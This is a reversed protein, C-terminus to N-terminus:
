GFFYMNRATVKTSAEATYTTGSKLPRDSQVQVTVEISLLSELIDAKSLPPTLEAGDSDLYQVTFKSNPVITIAGLGGNRTIGSWDSPSNYAITSVRNLTSGAPFDANESAVYDASITVTNSTVASVEGKLGDDGGAVRDSIYVEDGVYLDSTSSVSFSLGDDDPTYDATLVADDGSENMRFHLYSESSDTLVPLPADGLASDSISFDSQGATVGSGLMRLDFVMMDLAAKAREETQTVVETDLSTEMTNFMSQATAALLVSLVSVGVLLELLTFGSSDLQSNRMM